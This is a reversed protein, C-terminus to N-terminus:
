IVRGFSMHTAIEAWHRDVLLLMKQLGYVILDDDKEYLLASIGESSHIQVTEM